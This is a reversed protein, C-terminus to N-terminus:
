FVVAVFFSVHQSQELQGRDDEYSRQSEQWWVEGWGQLNVVGMSLIGLTVPFAQARRVQASAVLERGLQNPQLLQRSPGHNTM